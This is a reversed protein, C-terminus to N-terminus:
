RRGRMRQHLEMALLAGCSAGLSMAAVTLVIGVWGGAVVKLAINGILGVECISMVCSFVPVLSRCDHMVNLQQFAKAAIYVFSAAIVAAFQWIM